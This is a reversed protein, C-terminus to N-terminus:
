QILLLNSTDCVRKTEYYIQDVRVRFFDVDEEKPGLRKTYLELVFSAHLAEEFSLHTHSSIFLLPQKQARACTRGAGVARRSLPTM